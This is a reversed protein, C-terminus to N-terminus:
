RSVVSMTPASRGRSRRAPSSSPRPERLRAGRRGEVPIVWGTAGTWRHTQWRHPRCIPPHSGGAYEVAVGLARYLLDPIVVLDEELQLAKNVEPNPLGAFTLVARAESEPLSRADEDLHDLIWLAEDAGDRWLQALALTRLSDKTM